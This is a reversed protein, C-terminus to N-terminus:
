SSKEIKRIKQIKKQNKRIKQLLFKGRIKTTDMKKNSKLILFQFKISKIIFFFNSFKRWNEVGEPFNECPFKIIWIFLYILWSFFILFPLLLWKEKYIYIKMQKSTLNILTLIFLLLLNFIWREWFQVKKLRIGNKMLFTRAENLKPAEQDEYKEWNWVKFKKPQFHPFYPYKERWGGM